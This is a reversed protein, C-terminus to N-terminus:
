IEEPKLLRSYVNKQLSPVYYEYGKFTTYIVSESHCATTQHVIKGENDTLIIARGFGDKAANLSQGVEAKYLIPKHLLARFDEWKKDFMSHLNGVTMGTEYMSALFKRVFLKINKDKVMEEPSM